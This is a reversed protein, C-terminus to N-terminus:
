FKLDFRNNFREERFKDRIVHSGIINGTFHRGSRDVHVSCLGGNDIVFDLRDGLMSIVRTEFEPQMYLNSNTHFTTKHLINYRFELMKMDKNRHFEDKYDQQLFLYELCLWM